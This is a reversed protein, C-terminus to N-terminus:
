LRHGQADFVGEATRIILKGDILYKNVAEGNNVGEGINELSTVVDKQPQIHLAFRNESTGKPLTVIYDSLLLNTRTNTEYDILEVVMGETGDPMRFTYEGEAAIQVGVPVVSEEMPLANGAAQIRDSTLTYINAGNNIIKTLDINMDFDTTAGEQQLQVFTQDAKEEGQVLELGLVVKELLESESNRRAAIQAPTVGQVEKATWNIEGAFQVMYSYLAQFTVSTSSVVDYRSSNTIFKYYFSADQQDYHYQTVDFQDIQKFAPVGILNWHSDTINHDMGTSSVGLNCQHAPVTVTVPVVDREISGVAKTSPFYLSVSPVGHNFKVKNLDLVLVYGVGKKLVTEKDFIYKWYTGSNAYLGKRAREAGDYYQMIWADAYEGFGFAESLKVDFPFSVWYISQERSNKKIWDQTFTMVAYVTKVETLPQNNLTLQTVQVDNANHKRIVMMDAGLAGGEHNENFDPLWAVILHNTKFDYILRIKFDEAQADTSLLGYLGGEASGKFYQTEGAYLATLKIQSDKNAKVDVQYIWNQLDNFHVETITNKGNEDKLNVADVIRLYTDATTSNAGALYARTLKNTRWDWAFRVNANPDSDPLDGNEATVIRPNADAPDAALTDSICDGYDNAITFKVNKIGKDTQSVWECFYHSFPEYDDAYSSYTMKHSDRRFSHWKGPAVETRIYYDGTYPHTEKKLLQATTNDSETAQHLVFNFVGTSAISYDNDIVYTNEITWTASNANVTSCKQLIIKPNNEHNIFFSVIDKQDGSICRKIIREPHFTDTNEGEMYALRYDGPELPFRVTLEKTEKNYHFIYVGSMNATIKSNHHPESNYSTADNMIITKGGETYTIPTEWLNGSQTRYVGKEAVKFEYTVGEELYVKADMGYLAHAPDDMWNNFDGHLFCVDPYEVTLIDNSWTFQYVGDHMIEIKMNEDDGTIRTSTLATPKFTYKTSLWTQTNGQQKIIKFDKTGKGEININLKGDVFKNKEKPSWDGDLGVLYYDTYVQMTASITTNGCITYPTGSQVAQATGGINITASEVSYGANPKVTVTVQTDWPVKTGSPVEMGRTTKVIITGNEPQTYTIIPLDLQSWEGINQWSWFGEAKEKQGDGFSTITYVDGGDISLDNTQHWIHNSSADMRYFVVNTYQQDTPIDCYYINSDDGRTLVITKNSSSNYFHAAFSGIEGTKWEGINLHMKRMAFLNDGNTPLTLDITKNWADNPNFSHGGNPNLRVFNFNTVGAPLEATYYEDNCGVTTMDIWGNKGGDAWWYVAFRANDSKWINSPKLYIVPDKEFNATLTGAQSATITTSEWIPTAISVGETATWNVFRYGPKPAATIKTSPTHQGVNVSTPSVTGYTNNNSTVTVSYKTEIWNATITTPGCITYEEEAALTEEPNTGIKIKSNNGLTYGSHPHLAIKIVTNPAVTTNGLTSEGDHIVEMTGGEGVLTITYALPNFPESEWEGDWTQQDNRQTTITYLNESDTPIDLNNTQYKRNEWGNDKTIMCCFIVKNFNGPIACSYIGSCGVEEMDYWTADGGDYAYAAFHNAFSKWGNSPKLYLTTAEIFVAKLTINGNVTTTYPNSKSVENDSGDVWKSFSYRADATATLVVSTGYQVSAGSAIANGGVTASVSGGGETTFTITYSNITWKAWYEKHDISGQAIKTIADGTCGDNDYWGGFTYGTKTPIPLIIDKSEITYTSNEVGSGGNLHYTINYTIADWKAYLRSNDAKDWANTSAGEANYYQTGAGDKQDYYGAFTYGDKATPLQGIAPMAADYTAMVSTTGQTQAGTQDLEVTYRIATWKAYLTIAATYDTAGLSTIPEGTCDPSTFWGDFTYGTKTASKLETTQGYLHIAPYGDEHAGSFDDNNQDKYTITYEDYITLTAPEATRVYINGDHALAHVKYIGVPLASVNNPDFKTWTNGAELQYYYDTIIQAQGISSGGASATLGSNATRVRISVDGLTPPTGATKGMVQNGYWAYIAGAQVVENTSVGGWGPDNSINYTKPPLIAVALWKKAGVGELLLGKTETVVHNDTSNELENVYLYQRTRDTLEDGFYFMRKTDAVVEAKVAALDEADYDVQVTINTGDFGITIDAEAVTVFAINNDENTYSPVNCSTLQDKGHLIDWTGWPVIRFNKLGAPCASYTVSGDIINNLQKTVNFNADAIVSEIWNAGNLWSGNGNGVIVYQQIWKAYLTVEAGNEATLNSVEHADTYEVEGDSTTAWGAFKYGARTFANATLRKTENYTFSQNEMTGSADDANKNFVVTYENLDWTATITTPGCITHTSETTSITQEEQNGIKITGSQFSYGPDATMTVTVQENLTIDSIKSVTITGGGTIQTLTIDYTPATFEKWCSNDWVKHWSGSAKENSWYDSITCQNTGNTPMDLDKSQNWKSDWSLESKDKNMRVFIVNKNKVPDLKSSEIEVGYLETGEIKMMKHWSSDDTGNCLYVAFWAGDKDWDGPKLYLATITQSTMDYLVKDDAPVTLPLTQENNGGFKLNTTGGPIEATYYDGNCDYPTVANPTGDCIIVPNNNKWETKPRFYVTTSENIIKEASIKWQEGDKRITITFTGAGDRWAIRGNNIVLQQENNVLSIAGPTGVSGLNNRYNTSAYGGEPITITLKYTDNGENIFTGLETDGNFMKWTLEEPDPTTGGDKVIFAIKDSTAQIISNLMIFVRTYYTGAKAFNPTGTHTQPNNNYPTVGNLEGGAYEDEGFNYVGVVYGSNTPVNSTISFTLDNTGVTGETPTITASVTIQIWKAYLTIDQNVVDTSFNWANTCESEKYWGGFIYGTRTPDLHPQTVLGGKTVEQLEPQNETGGNLDFEVDCNSQEVTKYYITKNTQTGTYGSSTSGGLCPLYYVTYATASKPTGVNVEATTNTSATASSSGYRYNMTFNHDDITASASINMIANEDYIYPDIQTGTGSNANTASLSSSAASVTVYRSNQTVNASNETVATVLNYTAISNPLVIDNTKNYYSSPFTTTGNAPGADKGRFLIMGHIIMDKPIILYFVDSTSGTSANDTTGVKYIRQVQGAGGNAWIWAYHYCGSNNWWNSGESFQFYLRYSGDSKVSNAGWTNSVGMLLLILIATIRIGKTYGQLLNLIQKAKTAYNTFTTNM